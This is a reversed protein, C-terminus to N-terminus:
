VQGVFGVPHVERSEQAVSRIRETRVPVMRAEGIIGALAEAASGAAPVHRFDELMSALVEADSASIVLEQGMAM